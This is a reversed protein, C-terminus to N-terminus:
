VDDDFAPLALGSQSLPSCRSSIAWRTPRSSAVSRPPSPTERRTTRAPPSGNPVPPSASAGRPIRGPHDLAPATRRGRHRRPRARRFRCPRHPRGRRTRGAPRCLRPRAGGAAHRRLRARRLRLRHDARRRGRRRHSVRAGVHHRHRRPLSRPHRAGSAGDGRRFGPDMAFRTALTPPRTWAAIGTISEPKRRFSPSPLSVAASAPGGRGQDSLDRVGAFAPLPHPPSTM